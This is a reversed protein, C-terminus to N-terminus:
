MINVVLTGSATSYVSVRLVAMPLAAPLIAVCAGSSSGAHIYRIMISDCYEM